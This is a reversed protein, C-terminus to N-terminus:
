RLTGTFQGFLSGDDPEFVIPGRVNRLQRTGSTPHLELRPPSFITGTVAGTLTAGNAAVLTFSGRIEFDEAGFVICGEIALTGRQSAGRGAAYTGEFEMFVFSCPGQSPSVGGFVFDSEVTVTAPAVHRSQGRPQAQAPTAVAASLGLAVALVSFLIKRM